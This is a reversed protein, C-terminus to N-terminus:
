GTADSLVVNLLHCSKKLQKDVGQVHICVVGIVCDASNSHQCVSVRRGNVELQISETFSGM